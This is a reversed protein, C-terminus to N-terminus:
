RVGVPTEMVLAQLQPLIAQIDEPHAAPPRYWGRSEMIKSLEEQRRIANQSAQLFANRLQPTSAETASLAFGSACCKLGDNVKTAIIPDMSPVAMGRRGPSARSPSDQRGESSAPPTM